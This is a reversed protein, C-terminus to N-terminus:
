MQGAPRGTLSAILYPLTDACEKAIFASSGVIKMAEQISTDDQSSM